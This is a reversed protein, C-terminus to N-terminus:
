SRCESWRRCRRRRGWKPVGVLRRCRWSFSIVGGARRYGRDANPRVRECGANFARSSANGVDGGFLSTFVDIVWGLSMGAFFHLQPKWLLGYVRQTMPAAQPRTGRVAGGDQLPAVSTRGAGDPRNNKVNGVEAGLM